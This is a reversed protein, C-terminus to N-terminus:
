FRLYARTPRNVDQRPLGNLVSYQMIVIDARDRRWRPKVSMSIMSTSAMMPQREMRQMGSNWRNAALARLASICLTSPLTSLLVM